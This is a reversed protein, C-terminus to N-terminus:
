NLTGANTDALFAGRHIKGLILQHNEGVTIQFWGGLPWLRMTGVEERLIRDFEARDNANLREIMLGVVHRWREGFAPETMWTDFPVPDPGEVLSWAAEFWGEARDVDHCMWCEAARECMARALNRQADTMPEM